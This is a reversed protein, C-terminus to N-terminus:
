FAGDCFGERLVLDELGLKWIDVDLTFKYMEVISRGSRESIWDGPSLVVVGSNNGSFGPFTRFSTM